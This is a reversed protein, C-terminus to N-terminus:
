RVDLSAGALRSRNGAADISRVSFRFHGHGGAGAVSPALRNPSM